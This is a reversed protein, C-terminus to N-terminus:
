IGLETRIKSSVGDCGVLYKCSYTEIEKSRQNKAQVQITDGFREMSRYKRDYLM